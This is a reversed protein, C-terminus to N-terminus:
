KILVRIASHLERRKYKGSKQGSMSTKRSTSTVSGWLTQWEFIM